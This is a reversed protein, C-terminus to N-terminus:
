SRKMEEAQVKGDGKPTIRWYRGCEVCEGVYCMLPEDKERFAPMEAKCGPCWIIILGLGIGSESM